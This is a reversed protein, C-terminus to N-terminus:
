NEFLRRADHLSEVFTDVDELTNYLYGSARVTAPVGFSEVLPQACHHGSRVAVGDADLLQAIDDAFVGDVNFSIAATREHADRPGYITVWPLEGLKALAYDTWAREHGAIADMGLEDLFDLAAAFTIVGAIHPTGAEFKHPLEAWSAGDWTVREIMEGGTMWPDMDDLLKRRGYLVGLGTPGLMKHASFAYFDVGLAQVDVSRHPAGQAGDVVSLAGADRAIRAIEAVPNVTGLVNSAHPFAVIKTNGNIARAASDLDLRYDGTLEIFAIEAGTRRALQLWPVLNAHHEMRTLVIREGALVHKEGWCRAVMNLGETAGRTFVIEERAPANIRAAVRDRVSEFAATTEAALTHASRHVNSHLTEAVEREREIVARPRLSSAASDLYVLPRGHVTRALIPFQERVAAADVPSNTTEARVVM